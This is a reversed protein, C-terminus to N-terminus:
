TIGPNPKKTFVPVSLLLVVVASGWCWLCIHHLRAFELYRLYVTYILGVSILIRLALIRHKQDKLSNTLIVALYFAVGYLSVPLGFMYGYKSALVQSCGTMCVVKASAVHQVYLLYLSIGLGISALVSIYIRVIKKNINPM